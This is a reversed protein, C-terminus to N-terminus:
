NAPPDNVLIFRIGWKGGTGEKAVRMKFDAKIEKGDRNKGSLTGRFVVESKDPAIESSVFSISTKPGYRERLYCLYAPPAVEKREGGVGAFPEYTVLAKGLEPSLLGAAQEAQQNRVADWFDTAIGRAWKMEATAEEQARPSSSPICLAFLGCLLLYLNARMSDEKGM